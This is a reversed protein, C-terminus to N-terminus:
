YYLVQKKNYKENSFIKKIAKDVVGGSSVQM